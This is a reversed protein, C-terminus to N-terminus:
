NQSVYVTTVPREVVTCCLGGWGEESYWNVTFLQLQLGFCCRKSDFWDAASMRDDSLSWPVCPM